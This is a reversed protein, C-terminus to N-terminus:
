EVIEFPLSAQGIKQSQQDTIVLRLEYQDPYIRMPLTVTYQMHFDRRPNRCLDEVEPFEASDVRKGNKDVVEYSTGLRTRYGDKTSQSSFNEIEAYLTVQTGPRFKADEHLEYSGFGAVSDVFSLRRVQMTALEALKARAQDLHMLSGAARRKNDPQRKSDLFTSVAFLQKNWYDQQPATAGPIPALSAEEDGALLQLLRLRMHENVEDTSGPSPQVSAELGTVAAQLNAQWDRAASVETSYSVQRTQSSQRVPSSPPQSAIPEIPQDDRVVVATPHRHTESPRATTSATQQADFSVPVSATAVNEPPADDPRAFAPQATQKKVLLQNSKNPADVVALQEDTTQQERKALQQRFALASRFQRVILPWNEPKAQRLDAMLLQKADPDIAGVKTLEDLVNALAEEQTPEAPQGTSQSAQTAASPLPVSAPPMTMAQQKTTAASWPGQCGVLPSILLLVVYTVLRRM